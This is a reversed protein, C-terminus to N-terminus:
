LVESGANKKLNCRTIDEVNEDKVWKSVAISGSIGMFIFGAAIVIYNNRISKNSSGLKLHLVAPYIFGIPICGFTGIVSILLDLSSSALYAGICVFTTLSVRLKTSQNLQFISEVIEFAPFLQLPVSFIISISYLIQVLLLMFTSQLNLLVISATNNGFSISSTISVAFYLFMVCLITLKLIKSFDKPHEM